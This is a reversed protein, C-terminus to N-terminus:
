EALGCADACYGNAGCTTGTEACNRAAVFGTGSRNCVMSTDGSCMRSGPSCAVCGATADCAAECAMENLRGMGDPACTYFVNGACATAGPTCGVTADPLTVDVAGDPLDGGDRTPRRDDDGCAALVLLLSFCAFRSM